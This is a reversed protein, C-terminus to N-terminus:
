AREPDQLAHDMGQAIAVVTCLENGPARRTAGPYSHLRAHFDTGAVEFVSLGRSCGRRRHAGKNPITLWRTLWGGRDNADAGTMRWSLSATCSCCAHGLRARSDLERMHMTIGNNNAVFRSRIEAPLTTHHYGVDLNRM